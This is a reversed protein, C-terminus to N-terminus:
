IPVASVDFIVLFIVLFHRIGTSFHGSISGRHFGSAYDADIVTVIASHLIPVTSVDFTSRFTLRYHSSIRCLFPRFVIDVCGCPSRHVIDYPYQLSM